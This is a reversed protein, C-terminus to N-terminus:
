RGAAEPHETVTWTRATYSGAATLAGDATVTYRHWTAPTTERWSYRTTATKCLENTLPKVGGHDAWLTDAADRAAKQERTPEGCGAAIYGSTAKVWARALDDSAPGRDYRQAQAIRETRTHDAQWAAGGAFGATATLGALGVTAITRTATNTNM